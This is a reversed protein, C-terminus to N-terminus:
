RCCLCAPTDRERQLLSPSDGQRCLATGGAQVTDSIGSGGGQIAKDLGVVLLDLTQPLLTVLPAVTEPAPKDIINDIPIQFTPEELCAERTDVAILAVVLKQHGQGAFTPTETRAATRLSGRDERCKKALLHEFWYAM